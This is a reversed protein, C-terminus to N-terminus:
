QVSRNGFGICRKYAIREAEPKTLTKDEKYYAVGFEQWRQVTDWWKQAIDFDKSEAKKQKAFEYSQQTLLRAYAATDGPHDNDLKQLAGYYRSAEISLGQCLDETSLDRAYVAHTPICFSIAIAIARLASRPM